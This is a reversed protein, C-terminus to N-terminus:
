FISSDKGSATKAVFQIAFQWRDELAPVQTFNCSQVAVKYISGGTTETSGSSIRQTPDGIHIELPTDDSYMTECCFEELFNKYPIYYKLTDANGDHSNVAVTNYTVTISAMAALSISNSGSTYATSTVSDTDTTNTTDTGLNDVLGSISISPRVIGLDILEPKNTPIPVQIPTRALNVAINECKLALRITAKDTATDSHTGNRLLIALTDSM